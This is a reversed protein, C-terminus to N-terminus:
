KLLTLSFSLGDEIQPLVHSLAEVHFENSSSFTPKGRGRRDKENWKRMFKHKKSEVGRREERVEVVRRRKEM